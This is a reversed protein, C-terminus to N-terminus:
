KRIIVKGEEKPKAFTLTTTKTGRKAILEVRDGAPIGEYRKQLDAFSKVPFTNLMTIVDGKKVDADGLEKAANELVHDVVVDEGKAGLILGVQPIGLIDMDEGGSIIMRTKPLSKPDAKVFSAMVTGGARKVGLKVVAGPPTKEYLERLDKIGALKRGNAMLIRDGEELDTTEYGKMRMEKEMVHDVVLESEQELIMVSLEPVNLLQDQSFEKATAGGPARRVIKMHQADSPVALLICAAALILVASRKMPHETHIILPDNSGQVHLM